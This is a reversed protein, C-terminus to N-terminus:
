FDLLLLQHRQPWPIALRTRACSLARASAPVLNLDDSLSQWWNTLVQCSNIKTTRHGIILGNRMVSLDQSKARIKSPKIQQTCPEMSCSINFWLADLHFNLSTWIPYANGSQVIPVSIKAEGWWVIGLSLKFFLIQTLGIRILYSINCWARLFTSTFCFCHVFGDDPMTGQTSCSNFLVRHTENGRNCM